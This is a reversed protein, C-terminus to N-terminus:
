ASSKNYFLIFPTLIACVVGLAIYVVMDLMGLLTGAVLCIDFIIITAKGLGFKVCGGMIFLSVIFWLGSSLAIESIGITDALESLDLPTDEKEEILADAADRNYEIDDYVPQITGSSFAGPAITRLNPIVNMFYSAGTTTLASGGTAVEEIIDLSWELELQDAIYLVRSAIFESTQEISDSVMWRSVSATKKPVDGSWDLTPNGVLWVSYDALWEPSEDADIRIWVCNLGYGSDVFTYPAASAVQNGDEDVVIVLFSQTIIEDPLDAYQTDINILFAVDNLEEVHRYAFVSNIYMADPDDIALVPIAYLLLSVAMVIIALALIWEIFTRRKLWNFM